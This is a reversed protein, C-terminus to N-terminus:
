RCSGSFPSRTNPWSAKSARLRPLSLFRPMAPSLRRLGQSAKQSGYVLGGGLILLLGGAVLTPIVYAKAMDTKGMHWFGFSAVLFAAGFLIFFSSSFVEAKAWDTATKLIDM